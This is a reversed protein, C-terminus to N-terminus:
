EPKQRGEGFPTEDRGAAVRGYRIKVHEVSRGVIIEDDYITMM